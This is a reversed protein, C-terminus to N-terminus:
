VSPDTFSLQAVNEAHRSPVNETLQEASLKQGHGDGAAYPNSTVELDVM